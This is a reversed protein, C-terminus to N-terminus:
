SLAVVPIAKSVNTLAIRSNHALTSSYMDKTPCHALNIILLLSRPDYRLFYQMM